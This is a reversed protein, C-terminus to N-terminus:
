SSNSASVVTNLEWAGSKVNKDIPCKETSLALNKKSGGFYTFLDKM